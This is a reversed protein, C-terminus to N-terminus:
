RGESTPGVNRIYKYNMTRASFISYVIQCQCGNPPFQLNKPPGGFLHRFLCHHTVSTPVPMFRRRNKREDTQEDLTWASAAPRRRRNAQQRIISGGGVSSSAALQDLSVTASLRSSRSIICPISVACPRYHCVTIVVLHM